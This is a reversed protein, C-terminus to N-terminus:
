INVVLSIPLPQNTLVKPALQLETLQTYTHSFESEQVSMKKPKRKEEPIFHQFLKRQSYKHYIPCKLPMM